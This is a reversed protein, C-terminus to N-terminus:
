HEQNAQSFQGRMANIHQGDCWQFCIGHFTSCCAAEAYHIILQQVTDDEYELKVLRGTVRTSSSAQLPQPVTKTFHAVQQSFVHQISDHWLASSSIRRCKWITDCSLTPHMGRGWYKLRLVVKPNGVTDCRTKGTGVTGM